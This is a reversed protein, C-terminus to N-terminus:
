NIIFTASGDAVFHSVYEKRQWSCLCRLFWQGINGHWHEIFVNDQPDIEDEFGSSEHLYSVQLIKFIVWLRLTRTLHWRSRHWGLNPEQLSLSVFIDRLWHFNLCLKVPFLSLVLRPLNLIQTIDETSVSGWHKKVWNHSISLFTFSLFMLCAALTYFIHLMWSCKTTIIIYWEKRNFKVLM